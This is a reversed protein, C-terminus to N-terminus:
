NQLVQAAAQCTNTPPSCNRWADQPGLTLLTNSGTRCQGHLTDLCCSRSELREKGSEKEEWCWSNAACSQTASSTSYTDQRMWEM